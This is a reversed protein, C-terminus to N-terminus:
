PLDFLGFKLRVRLFEGADMRGAARDEDRWERILQNQRNSARRGIDRLDDAGRTGNRTMRAVAALPTLVKGRVTARNEWNRRDAASAEPRDALQCLRDRSGAIERQLEDLPAGLRPACDNPAPLDECALVIQWLKVIAGMVRLGREARDATLKEREVLSPYLKQRQELLDGALRACAEWDDRRKPWPTVDSAFTRLENV